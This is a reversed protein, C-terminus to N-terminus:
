KLKRFLLTICVKGSCLTSPSGLYTDVTVKIIKQNSNITFWTKNEIKKFEIDSLGIHSGSVLKQFYFKDLIVQQGFGLENTNLVLNSKIALVGGQCNAPITEADYFISIDSVCVQWLGVNLNMYNLSYELSCLNNTKTPNFQIVFDLSKLPNVEPNLIGVSNLLKWTLHNSDTCTEGQCHHRTAMYIKLAIHIFGVASVITVSFFLDEYASNFYACLTFIVSFLYFWKIM